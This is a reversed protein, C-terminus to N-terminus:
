RVEAPRRGRGGVLLDRWRDELRDGPRLTTARWGAARLGAVARAAHPEDDAAGTAVVLALRSTTGRGARVLSQLETAGPVTVIAILTGSGALGTALQRLLGPLDVTTPQAEALVGLLTSWALPRPRGVIPRDLLVVSRRRATLHRAVSAAAAVAREFSADPGHGQHRDARADLVITARAAVAADSQRVMLRGRRATSGWHVARLDDGVVYERIDGLGDGLMGPRRPGGTVEETAQGLPVGAPLDHIPPYVTVEVSSDVVRRREVLGFPDRTVTTLPGIRFRGRQRATLDYTVTAWRGPPLSPLPAQPRRALAPAVQDHLHLPPLPLPGVNRLRLTVEAHAGFPLTAPRVTREVHLHLPVLSWGAAALLLVTAAVAAVHLEPVGFSRAATWLGVVAIAVGIGRRTM